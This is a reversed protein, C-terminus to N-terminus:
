QEQNLPGEDDALNMPFFAIAVDMVDYQEASYLLEKQENILHDDANLGAERIINVYM